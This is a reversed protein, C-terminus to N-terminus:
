DLEARRPPDAGHRGVTIASARLAYALAAEVTEDDTAALDARSRIGRRILAAIVASMFSDGAGITDAVDVSLGPRRVEGGRTWATAGRDGATVFVVAAGLGLWRAAAEDASGFGLLAIDEDSAKVIGAREALGDVRARAAGMDELLAPRINPDFTVLVNPDLAALFRHVVDAGPDLLAGISGVHVLERDVVGGPESPDWSLAFRYRASGSEDLEAHAISTPRESHSGSTVHVHNRALHQRIRAGFRDDGIQTHLRTAVELRAAGVAVNLPSGGPTIRERGTFDPVVDVLSEGIVLLESM